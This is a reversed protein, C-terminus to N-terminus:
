KKIKGPQFKIVFKIFGFPDNKQDSIDKPVEYRLRAGAYFGNTQVRLSEEGTTRNTKDEVAMGSGWGGLRVGEAAASGGAYLEVNPAAAVSKPARTEQARTPPAYALIAAGSLLAASILSCPIRRM